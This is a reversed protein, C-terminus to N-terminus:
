SNRSTKEKHADVSLVYGVAKLAKSLAAVSAVKLKTNELRSITPQKLGSLKAVDAQTLGAEVRANKLSVRAPDLFSM